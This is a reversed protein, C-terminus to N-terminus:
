FKELNKEEKKLVYMFAYISHTINIIKLINKKWKKWKKRIKSFFYGIKKFLIVLIAGSGCGFKAIHNRKKAIKWWGQVGQAQHFIAFLTSKQELHGTSATSDLNELFRGNPLKMNKSFIITSLCLFVDSIFLFLRIQTLVCKPYKSGLNPTM